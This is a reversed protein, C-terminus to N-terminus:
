NKKLKEVLNNYDAEFSEEGTLLNQKHVEGLTELKKNAYDNLEKEVYFKFPVVPKSLEKIVEYRVKNIQADTTLSSLKEITEKEIKELNELANTKEEETLSKMKNIKEKQYKIEEMLGKAFNKVKDNKFSKLSELRSEEHFNNSLELLKDFIDEKDIKKRYEEKRKESLNMKNLEDKLADRQKKLEEGTLKKSSPKESNSQVKSQTTATGATDAAHAEVASGGIAVGLGVLVSAVGIKYKRISFKEKNKM